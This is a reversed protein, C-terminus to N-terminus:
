WPTAELAKELDEANIFYDLEATTGGRFNLTFVGAGGTCNVRQIETVGKTHLHDGTPCRLTMKPM